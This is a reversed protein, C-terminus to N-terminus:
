EVTEIGIELSIFVTLITTKFQDFFCYNPISIKECELYDVRHKVLSFM